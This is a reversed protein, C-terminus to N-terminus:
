MFKQLSVKLTKYNRRSFEVITLKNWTSSLKSHKNLVFREMLNLPSSYASNIYIKIFNERSRTTKTILMIILSLLRCLGLVYIKSLEHAWEFKTTAINDHSTVLNQYIPTKLGYISYMCKIISIRVYVKLM